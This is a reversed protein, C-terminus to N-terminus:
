IYKKLQIRIVESLRYDRSLLDQSILLEDEDCSEIWDMLEDYTLGELNVRVMNILNNTISDLDALLEKGDKLTAFMGTSDIGSWMNIKNKSM